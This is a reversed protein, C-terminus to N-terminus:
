WFFNYIEIEQLFDNQGNGSVLRPTPLHSGIRLILIARGVSIYYAPVTGPKRKWKTCVKRHSPGTPDKTELRVQKGPIPVPCRYDGPRNRGYPNQQRHYSRRQGALAQASM